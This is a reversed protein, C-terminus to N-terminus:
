APIGLRELKKKLYDARELAVKNESEYILAQKYAEYGKRCLVHCICLSLLYCYKWEQMREYVDGLNNWASVYSSRLEVAKQYNKLALTDKELCFYCYGM